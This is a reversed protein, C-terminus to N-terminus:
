VVFRRVLHNISSDIYSYKVMDDPLTCLYNSMQLRDYEIAYRTEVCIHCVRDNKNYMSHLWRDKTNDIIFIGKSSLNAKVDVGYPRKWRNKKIYFDIGQSQKEQDEPFYKVMDYVKLAYAHYMQEALVAKASEPTDGFASKIDQTWHEVIRM